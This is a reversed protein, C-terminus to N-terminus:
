PVPHPSLPLVLSSMWPPLSMCSTMWSSSPTLELRASRSPHTSWCWSNRRVPVVLLTVSPTPLSLSLSPGHTVYPVYPLRPCGEVGEVGEVGGGRWGRWRVEVYQNEVLTTAASDSTLDERFVDFVSETRGDQGTEATNDAPYACLASGRPGVSSPSLPPPPISPSPPPPLPPPPFPPPPLTHTTHPQM